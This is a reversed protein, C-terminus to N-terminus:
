KIPMPVPFIESIPLAPERPEAVVMAFTAKPEFDRVRDDMVPKAMPWVILPVPMSTPVVMVAIEPFVIVREEVVVATM